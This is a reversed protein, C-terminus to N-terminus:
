APTRNQMARATDRATELLVAILAPVLFVLRRWLLGIRPATTKGGRAEWSRNLANWASFVRPIFILTLTLLLAFSNHKADGNPQATRNYRRYLADPVSCIADVADRIALTGTTEYFVTGALLAAALRWLYLGHMGLFSQAAFLIIGPSFFDRVGSATETGPAAQLGPEPMAGGGAGGTAGGTAGGSAGATFFLILVAYWLIWFAIRRYNAAPIRAILASAMICLSSVALLTLSGSFVLSTFVALLILKVRSDCRHVWTNGSRYAFFVPGTKM